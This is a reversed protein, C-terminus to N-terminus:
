LVLGRNNWSCVRGLDRSFWAIGRGCILKGVLSTDAVSSTVYWDEAKWGGNWMCDTKGEEGVPDDVKIKGCHIWGITVRAWVPLRLGFVNKVVLCRIGTHKRTSRVACGESGEEYRWARRSEWQFFAM